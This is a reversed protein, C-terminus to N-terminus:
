ISPKRPCILDPMFRLFQEWIRGRPHAPLYVPACEASIERFVPPNGGWM